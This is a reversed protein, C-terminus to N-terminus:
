KTDKFKSNEEVKNNDHVPREFLTVTLRYDINRRVEFDGEFATVIDIKEVRTGLHKLATFSGEAETITVLGVASLRMVIQSYNSTSIKQKNGIIEQLRDNVKDYETNSESHDADFVQKELKSQQDFVALLM